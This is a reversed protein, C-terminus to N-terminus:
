AMRTEALAEHVNDTTQFDGRMAKLAMREETIEEATRVGMRRIVALPPCWGQISHQVLFGGVLTPLIFWRKSVTLGLITGVTTFTGAITEITRDTDWEHELQKLRDSIAEHSRGTYRAINAVTRAEIDRNVARNTHFQVRKTTPPLVAMENEM